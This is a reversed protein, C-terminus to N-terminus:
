LACIREVSGANTRIRVVFDSALSDTRLQKALQLPAIAVGTPPLGIAGIAHLLNKADCCVTTRMRARLRALNSM